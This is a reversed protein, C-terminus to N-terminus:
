PLEENTATCTLGSLNEQGVACQSVLGWLVNQSRASDSIARWARIKDCVQRFESCVLWCTLIKQGGVFFQSTHPLRSSKKKHNSFYVSLLGIELNRKKVTVSQRGLHQFNIYPSPSYPLYIDTCFLYGTLKTKFKVSKQFALTFRLYRKQKYLHSTENDSIYFSYNIVVLIFAANRRGLPTNRNPSTRM